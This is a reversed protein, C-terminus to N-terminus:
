AADGTAPAPSGAEPHIRVQVQERAWDALPGGLGTESRQSLESMTWEGGTMTM